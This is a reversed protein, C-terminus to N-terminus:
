RHHGAPTAIQAGRGSPRAGRGRRDRREWVASISVHLKMSDIKMLKRLTQRNALLKNSFLYNKKRLLKFVTFFHELFENKTAFFGKKTCTVDM